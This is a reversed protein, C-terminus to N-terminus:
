CFFSFSFTQLFFLSHNWKQVVSPHLYRRSKNATCQNYIKLKKSHVWFSHWQMQTKWHIKLYLWYFPLNQFYINEISCCFFRLWRNSCSIINPHFRVEGNMQSLISHKCDSCRRKCAYFLYLYRKWFLKFFSFGVM